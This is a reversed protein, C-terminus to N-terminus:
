KLRLILALFESASPPATPRGDELRALLQLGVTTSVLISLAEFLVGKELHRETGVQKCGKGHYMRIYVLLSIFNDRGRSM